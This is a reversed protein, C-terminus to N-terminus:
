KKLSLAKNNIIQKIAQVGIAFVFNLKMVLCSYKTGTQTNNSSNIQVDNITSAEYM